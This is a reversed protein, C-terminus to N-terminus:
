SDSPKRTRRETVKAPARTGAVAGASQPRGPLPAALVERLRVLGALWERGDRPDTWSAVADARDALIRDLARVALPRLATLDPLPRQPGFGRSVPEGGPCRAAV